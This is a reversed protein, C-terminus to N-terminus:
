RSEMSLILTLLMPLILAEWMLVIPLYGLGTCPTLTGWSVCLRRESKEQM